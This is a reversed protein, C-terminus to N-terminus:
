ILSGDLRAKFAKLSPAYVSRSIVAHCIPCECSRQAALELVRLTFFKQRVDLRFRGKELKFENGM